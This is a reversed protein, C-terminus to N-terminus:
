ILRYWSGTVSILLSISYTFSGKFQSAKYEALLRIQNLLMRKGASHFPLIGGKVIQFQQLKM